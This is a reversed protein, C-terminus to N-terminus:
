DAPDIAQPRWWAWVLALHIPLLLSIWHVNAQPVRSVWYLFM